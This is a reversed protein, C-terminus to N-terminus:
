LEEFICGNSVKISIHSIELGFQNRYRININDLHPNIDVDKSLFLICGGFGGGVQRAGLIDESEMLWDVLYDTEECTIEYDAKASLHSLLLLEGITEFDRSELAEVLSHVRSNESIVHRARRHMKDSLGLQYQELLEFNLDQYSAVQDNKNKIIELATQSQHRRENYASDQLTHPVNSNILHFKYNALDLQIAKHELSLCNLLLAHNAQGFISAFQDMVGCNVGAFEHESRQAIKVMEWKSLELEFLKSLGFITACCLAASSSMGAGQPINGTFVMNFGSIIHKVSNVVGLIYNLWHEDSKEIRDLSFRQVSDFDLSVVNCTKDANSSFVATICYNVAAPLVYGQNYDTHEGMLNIRGPASVLLQPKNQIQKKFAAILKDQHMPM